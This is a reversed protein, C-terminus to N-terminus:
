GAGSFLSNQTASAIGALFQSIARVAAEPRVQLILHPSDIREVRADPYRRQISQYSRPKVLRDRGAQLYLLPVKLQPPAFHADFEMMVSFRRALVRAPVGGIAHYFLAVVDEKAEGLLYRRVLWRPPRLGGFVFGCLTLLPM